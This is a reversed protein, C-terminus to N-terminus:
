RRGTGGGTDRWRALLQELGHPLEEATVAFLLHDRWAGAIDLYRELLGEERFGLHRVVAQSALNDPAITAEIRHLGVPGLAHAVALAVAATAVGQRHVASDVWYGVWGSRLAGRQIGGLTVQGVFRDGVTIAFPVVEGRRAGGALLFRHSRWLAGSHRDAWSLDSSADFPEILARDRLRLARWARGDSRRLPRLEVPGAACQVPGLRAPWGPHRSSSGGPGATPAM